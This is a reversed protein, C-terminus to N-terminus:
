SGFKLLDVKFLYGIISLIMFSAFVIVLGVISWTLRARAAAIKGKDGGSTTWQIGSWVAVIIALIVALIIMINVANGIAGQMTSLGGKPGLSSPPQVTQGGITLSLYKM